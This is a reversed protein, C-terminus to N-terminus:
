LEITKTGYTSLIGVLLTSCAAELVIACNFMLLFVPLAVFRRARPRFAAITRRLLRGWKKDHKFPIVKLGFMPIFDM